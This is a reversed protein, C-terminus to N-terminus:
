TGKLEEPLMDQLTPWNVARQKLRNATDLKTPDDDSKMNWITIEAMQISKEKQFIATQHNIIAEWKPWTQVGLARLASLREDATPMQSIQTVAQEFEPTILLSIIRETNM